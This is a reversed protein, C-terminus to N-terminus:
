KPGSQVTAVAASDSPSWLPQGMPSWYGSEVIFLLLFMALLQM